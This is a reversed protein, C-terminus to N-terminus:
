PEIRWFFLEAQLEEVQGRSVKIKPLAKQLWKVGAGTVKTGYLSVKRLGEMTKLHVLGADSIKPVGLALEQLSPINKLYGLGKDTVQASQIVLLVLHGSKLQALGADGVQTDILFLGTVPKLDKLLGLDKDAFKTGRFIVKYGSFGSEERVEGGLAGIATTAKEVAAEAKRRAMEAKQCAHRYQRWFQRDEPSLGAEEIAGRLQKLAKVAARRVNDDPDDTADRVRLLAFKATLGVEGLARVAKLRVFEFPDKALRSALKRLAKKRRRKDPSRADRLARELAGRAKAEAAPIAGQIRSLAQKVALRVGEDPDDLAQKL